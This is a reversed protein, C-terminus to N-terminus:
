TRPAGPAVTLLHASPASAPSSRAALVRDGLVDLLVWSGEGPCALRALPPAAPDADAGGADSTVAGVGADAGTCGWQHSGTVVHGPEFTPASASGTPDLRLHFAGDFCGVDVVSAEHDLAFITMQDNVVAEYEMHLLRDESPSASAQIHVQQRITGSVPYSPAATPNLLGPHLAASSFRSQRQLYAPRPKLFIVAFPIGIVVSVAVAFIAAIMCFKTRTTRATVPRLDSQIQLAVDSTEKM